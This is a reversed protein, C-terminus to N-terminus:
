ARFEKIRGKTDVDFGIHEDISTHREFRGNKLSVIFWEKGEGDTGILDIGNSSSELRLRIVKEEDEDNELIFRM